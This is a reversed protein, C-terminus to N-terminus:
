VSPATSTDAILVDLSQLQAIINDRLRSLAQREAVLAARKAALAEENLRQVNAGANRTDIVFLTTSIRVLRMTGALKAQEYDGYDEFAM